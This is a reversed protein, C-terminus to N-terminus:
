RNGCKNGKGSGKKKGKHAGKKKGHHLTLCKAPTKHPTGGKDALGVAPVSMSIAVVAGLVGSTLRKNM